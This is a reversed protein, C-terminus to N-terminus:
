EPKKEAMLKLTNEIGERIARELEGPKMRPPPHGNLPKFLGDEVRDVNPSGMEVLGSEIAAQLWLPPRISDKQKPSPTYMALRYPMRYEPAAFVKVKRLDLSEGAKPTAARGSREKSM